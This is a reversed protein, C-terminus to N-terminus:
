VFLFAYHPVYFVHEEEELAGELIIYGDEKPVLGWKILRIVKRIKKESDSIAYVMRLQMLLLLAM